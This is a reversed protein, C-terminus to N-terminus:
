VHLQFLVVVAIIAAVHLNFPKVLPALSQGGACLMRGAFCLQLCCSYHLAKGSFPLRYRGGALPNCVPSQSSFSLEHICRSVGLLGLLSVHRVKKPSSPYRCWCVQTLISCFCSVALLCSICPAPFRVRIFWFHRMLPLIGPLGRM